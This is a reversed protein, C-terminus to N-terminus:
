PRRALLQAARHEHRASCPRALSGALSLVGTRSSPISGGAGGVTGHWATMAGRSAARPSRTHSPLFRDPYLPSVLSDSRPSARSLTERRTAAREQRRRHEPSRCVVRRCNSGAHALVRAAWDIWRVRRPPSPPSPPPSPSLCVASGRRAARLACRSSIPSGRRAGARRGWRAFSRRRGCRRSRRRSSRTSGSPISSLSPSRSLDLPQADCCEGNPSM